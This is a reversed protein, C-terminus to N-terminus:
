RGIELKWSGFHDGQSTPIPLPSKKKKTKKPEAKLLRAYDAEAAIYVPDMWEHVRKEVIQKLQDKAADTKGEILNQAADLYSAAIPLRTKAGPKTAAGPLRIPASPDAVPERSVVPKPMASPGTRWDSLYAFVGPDACKSYAERARAYDAALYQAMGLACSAEPLTEAPKRLEKAAIDFKRIVMLGRGRELLLRPEDPRTEVARTLVELADGVRGLAMLARSLALVADVSAPDRRLVDRAAAVAAERQSRVDKSLPPAFLPKELLSMTEPQQVLLAVVFLASWVGM